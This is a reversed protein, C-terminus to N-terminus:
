YIGQFPAFNAASNATTNGTVSDVWVPRIATAQHKPIGPNYSWAVKGFFFDETYTAANGRDTMYQGYFASKIVDRYSIKAVNTYRLGTIPLFLGEDNRVQQTVDRYDGLRKAPFLQTRAEGTNCTWFYAGYIKNGYPTYCFAPIVNAENFLKKMDTDSPLCYRQRNNYTYYYAIDGFNAQDRPVTDDQIYRRGYFKKAINRFLGGRYNDSHLDLAKEIDGWRFLDLDNPDQQPGYLFQSTSTQGTPTTFGWASIYWQTPAIGWYEAQTTVDKYHIFNGKAWKVGQVEVYPLRSNSPAPPADLATKVNTKYVHDAALNVTTYTKVYRDTGKWVTISVHDYNGPLVAAYVYGGDAFSFKGSAPKLTITAAKHKNETVFTGTGLDLVDSAHVNTIEIADIDTMAGNPDKFRLGWIAIKRQMAGVSCQVNTGNVATPHVAKWQYDFKKGITTISGDQQTLDLQVLHKIKKSPNYYTVALTGGGPQSENVTTKEVPKITTDSGTSASGPYLFCLTSSMNITTCANINGDFASNQQVNNGTLVVTLLSYASLQSITNADKDSLNYALLQDGTEWASHVAASDDTTLSRAKSNAATDGGAATAAATIHYTYSPTIDNGDNDFADEKCGYFLAAAALLFPLTMFFKTQTKM